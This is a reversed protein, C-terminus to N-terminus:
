SSKQVSTLRTGSLRDHLYCQNADFFRWALGFGLAGYSLTAAALRLLIQTNTVPLGASSVLKVRWAQMGLTQGGRRWFIFYFVAVSIIAASQVLSPPLAVVEKSTDAPFMQVYLGLVLATSLMIIPVVLFTDYVLALLHRHFPPAIPASM